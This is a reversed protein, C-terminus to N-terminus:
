KGGNGNEPNDGDSRMPEGVKTKLIEKSEDALAERAARRADLSRKVAAAGGVAALAGAVGLGVGKGFAKSAAAKEISSILKDVGGAKGAATTFEEYPGLNGAM